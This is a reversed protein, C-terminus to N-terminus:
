TVQRFQMSLVTPRSKLEFSWEGVYGMYYVEATKARNFYVLTPNSLDHNQLTQWSPLNTEWMKATWNQLLYRHGTRMVDLRSDPGAEYRPQVLTMPMPVIPGSQPPATNVTPWAFFTGVRFFAAADTPTQSPILLKIFRDTFSQTVWIKRYRDKEDLSVTYTNGSFATYVGGSTAAHSWDMTTINCDYLAVGAVAVSAGLDFIITQAATTTSRWARFPRVRSVMRSAPYNAAESTQSFVTPTHFSPVWQIPM